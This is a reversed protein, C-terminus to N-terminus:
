QTIGLAYFGIGIADLEHTTKPVTKLISHAPNKAIAIKTRENMLDKPVQGKWDLIRIPEVTDLDCVEGLFLGHLMGAFMTLKVIDQKANQMQARQIFAPLEYCYFKPSFREIVEEKIYSLLVAANHHWEDFGHFSFNKTFQLVSGCWVAVGTGSLGPDLSIWYQDRTVVPKLNPFRVSDLSFSAPMQSKVKYPKLLLKM